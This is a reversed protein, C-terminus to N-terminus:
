GVNQPNGRHSGLSSLLAWDKGLLGLGAHGLGAKKQATVSPVQNGVKRWTEEPRRSKAGATDEAQFQTEELDRQQFGV